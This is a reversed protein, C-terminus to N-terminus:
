KKKLYVILAGSRHKSRKEWSFTLVTGAKKLAVVKREVVDPLVAKDQSHLGKGVVIRITKLGRLRASQIFSETKGAAERATYGHLDIEEQVEPYDALQERMLRQRAAESSGEKEAIVSPIETEALSRELMDPFADSGGPQPEVGMFLAEVDEDSGVIRVKSKSKIMRAM